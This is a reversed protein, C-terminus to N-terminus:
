LPVIPHLSDFIPFYSHYVLNDTLCEFSQKYQKARYMAAILRVPQMNDEASFDYDSDVNLWDQIAQTTNLCVNSLYWLQEQVVPPTPPILSTLM